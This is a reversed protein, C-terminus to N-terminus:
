KIVNVNSQHFTSRCLTTSTANTRSILLSGTFVSASSPWSRCICGTMSRRDESVSRVSATSTRAFGRRVRRFYLVETVRWDYSCQGAIVIPWWSLLRPKNPNSYITLTFITSQRNTNLTIFKYSWWPSCMKMEQPPGKDHHVDIMWPSTFLFLSSVM